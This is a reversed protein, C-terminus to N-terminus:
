SQEKSTRSSEYHLQQVDVKNLDLQGGPHISYEHNPQVFLGMDLNVDLLLTPGSTIKGQLTCLQVAFLSHYLHTLPKM